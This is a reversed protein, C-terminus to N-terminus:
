WIHSVKYIAGDSKQVSRISLESIIGRTTPIESIDYHHEGLKDIKVGDKTWKLAIPKDGTANCKLVM